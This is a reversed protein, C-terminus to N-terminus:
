KCAPNSKLDINKVKKSHQELESGVDSLHGSGYVTVPRRYLDRGTQIAALLSQNRMLDLRDKLRNTGQLSGGPTSGALPRVDQALTAADKPLPRGNLEQYRTEFWGSTVCPDVGRNRCVIAIEAELGASDPSAYRNLISMFLADKQLSALTAGEGYLGPYKEPPFAALDAASPYQNDGPIIAAQKFFARQILFSSESKMEERKTFADRLVGACDLPEGAERGEIIVADTGGSFTRKELDKQAQKLQEPDLKYFHKMGLFRSEDFRVEQILENTGAKPAYKCAPGESVNLKWTQDRPAKMREAVRRNERVFFYLNQQFRKVGGKEPSLSEVLQDWGREKMKKQFERPSLPPDSEAWQCSVRFMEELNGPNPKTRASAERACLFGPKGFQTALQLIGQLDGLVDASSPSMFGSLLLAFIVRMTVIIAIFRFL